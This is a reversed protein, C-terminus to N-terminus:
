TDGAESLLKLGAYRGRHFVLPPADTHAFDIIEGVIIVHDGAHHHANRRCRFWAACDDILPAGGETRRWSICQFRDGAGKASFRISLAKQHAGLVHVIFEDAQEFAPLSDATRALSWLVLPPKLSVSSFSNITVGVPAGAAESTTVVTVGTAFCGMSDRLRRVASFQGRGEVRRTTVAEAGREDGM